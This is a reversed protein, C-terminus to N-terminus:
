AAQGRLSPPAAASVADLFSRATMITRDLASSRFLSNFNNWTGNPTGVM